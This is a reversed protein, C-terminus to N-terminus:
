RNTSLFLKKRWNLSNRDLQKVYEDPQTLITEALAIAQELQAETLQQYASGRKCDLVEYWCCQFLNDLLIRQFCHNEQVPFHRHQSLKPLIENTLELYRQRLNDLKTM